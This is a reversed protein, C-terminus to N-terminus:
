PLYRDWEFPVLTHFPAALLPTVAGMNWRERVVPALRAAVEVPDEDLFCYTIQQAMDGELSTTAWWAGAVGDVQLLDDAATTVSAHEILVYVGRTPRWAIVDAGALVRPAAIKGILDYVGAHVSPLRLPMRGGAGLAGGLAFFPDIASRGAFLYTMVHDIADFREDAAARAARCEPTSVHRLSGRMGKLRHQEPRHDLTHWELYDADRGDPERASLSVFITDVDTTGTALVDPLDESPRGAFITM